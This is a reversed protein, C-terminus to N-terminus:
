CFHIHLKEKRQELCIHKLWNKDDTDPYDERYHTGRSEKRTHAAKAVLRSVTIMNKLELFRTNVGNGGLADLRRNLQELKRLMLSLNKENRLIGVYNWMAARLEARIDKLEQNDVNSLATEKQQPPAEIKNKLYNKTKKAGLSSFVVSELLSNSALRNAGHVETCACEGFALLNALTTEGYENTKIGGCIYHAAPSVPILDATIDIGYKLCEQHIMPFRELIFREGKHRIDLYVSGKKLENFLTRSIIDRPALEGMRDYEEMFREGKENVLIAGEGRLAESILFHPADPKNLTTPHFQVFEMDEIKAGARLAMAIGDGTAIEPNTTNKYIYGIGGTALITARAFIDIVERKKIDLIKAGVCETNNLLLDIAFCNEFVQTNRNEHIRETMTHEIEKGTTDGSHLVRAISHGGETTLHLEDNEKDFNVGFSLLNQIAESGKEALIEVIHKNSLGSGVKLTDEIHLKVSDEKRTVAAIGGQALNTNSEVIEKKTVVTVNGYKAANLAFNLGAIGSGVVLFDTKM